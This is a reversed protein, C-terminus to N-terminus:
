SKVAFNYNPDLFEVHFGINDTRVYSQYFALLGWPGWNGASDRTCTSTALAGLPKTGSYSPQFTEVIPAWTGNFVPAIQQALTAAYDFQYILDYRGRVANYLYVENRWTGPTVQVTTNTVGLVQRTQGHSSVNRLYETMHSWPLDTQWPNAPRAWDYVKFRPATQAYYHVYAELGLVARNMATVYLFNNVNGGPTNPCIIDWGLSTGTSFARKFADYYYFGYGVGGPVPQQEALADLGLQEAMASVTAGREDLDLTPHTRVMHLKSLLFAQRAAEVDEDPYERTIRAFQEREDAPEGPMDMGIARFPASVDLITTTM